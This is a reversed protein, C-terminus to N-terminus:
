GSAPKLENLLWWLVCPARLAITAALMSWASGWSYTCLARRGVQLHHECYDADALRPIAKGARLALWIVARKTLYGDWAVAGLLWPSAVRTLGACLLDRSPSHTRTLGAAVCDRQLWARAHLGCM